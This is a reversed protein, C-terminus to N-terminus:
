PDDFGTAGDSAQLTGGVLDRGSQEWSGAPATGALHEDFFGVLVTTALNNADNDGPGGYVPTFHDAGPITLLYAPGDASELFQEGLEVPSINDEDGYILLLPPGSVDYDTDDFRFAPIVGFAVVASVREDICCPHYATGLAGATGISHGAVGVRAPDIAAALDDAVGDSPDLLSDIALRVDAPQEVFGAPSSVPSSIEPVNPAIVIYGAEALAVLVPDGPSARGGLGNLWVVLPRPTGPSAAAGEGGGDAGLFLMVSEVHRDESAALLIKGDAAVVEATPRTPDVLDVTRWALVAEVPATTTTSSTSTPPATSTSTTAATTTSSVLVLDADSHTEGEPSAVGGGSCASLVGVIAAVAGVRYRASRNLRGNREEDLCRTRM